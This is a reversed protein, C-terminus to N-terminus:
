ELREYQFTVSTEAEVAGGIKFVAGADTQVVVTDGPHLPLYSPVASFNLGAVDAATVSEFPVGDLFALTVGQKAPVLVAHPTRDADYGFRVDEAGPELVPGLMQDHVDGTDLDLAQVEFQLTAPVAAAM